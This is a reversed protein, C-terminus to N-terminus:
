GHPDKRGLVDVAREIKGRQDLRQAHRHASAEDRGGAMMVLDLARALLRRDLKQHGGPRLARGLGAEVEARLDDVDKGAIGRAPRGRDHSSVHQLRPPCARREGREVSRPQGVPAGGGGRRQRRPM